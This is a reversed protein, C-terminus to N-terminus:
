MVRLQWGEGRAAVAAHWGPECSLRRVRWDGGIVGENRTEITAAELDAQFRLEFRDIAAFLGVGQGKLVAEKASWLRFFTERRQDESADRVAEIESGVFYSSAIDLVHTRANEWQLDVGVDRGCTVALLARGNSHSLNFRLDVAPEVLMPKGHEGRAFCLRAPHAECYAGLVVRMLGRTLVFARRKEASHFRDARDLEDASLLARCQERAEDSAAQLLPWVHIASFDAKARLPQALLAEPQLFRLPVDNM